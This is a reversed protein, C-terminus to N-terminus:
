KVLSIGSKKIKNIGGSLNCVNEFGEQAMFRVAHYSRSGTKCYVIYQKSRDLAKIKEVFSKKYIDILTANRLHGSEFEGQTRVDIIVTKSTDMIKFQDATIQCIGASSSHEFAPLLVNLQLHFLIILPLSFLRLM